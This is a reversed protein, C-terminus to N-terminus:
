QGDSHTIQLKLYRRSPDALDDLAVSDEITVRQFGDQVGAQDAPLTTNQVAWAAGSALSDGGVVSYTLADDDTRGVYTLTLYHKGQEVKVGVTVPDLNPQTPDLGLAYEVLNTLGDKDPDARDGVISSDTVGHWYKDKWADFATGASVTVLMTKSDALHGDSASFIIPYQGIQTSSPTWQFDGSGDHNDVFHADTPLQAASFIIADGDQDSAHLKIHYNQNAQIYRDGPAGIVPAHNMAPAAGYTVLYSKTGDNQTDFLNTSYTVGHTVPDQEQQIWANSPNILKQDSRLVSKIVQGRVYVPSNYRVFLLQYTALSNLQVRDTSTAPSTITCKGIYNQVMDSAGPAYDSEYCLLSTAGDLVSPNFTHTPDAAGYALFDRISDRGPIDVLVNGLLAHATASTILSTVAGGLADAHTLNVTFATFHGSLSATMAWRAIGARLAPLSGFDALLTPQARSGNVETSDIHFSVALHQKNDVIKPQSSQIQLNQAPAHGSNVVRVGLTFPEAPEIIDNTFPDDGFVEVPLFYELQLEPQPAVYVYDPAVNVTQIVGNATYQVTAGIYYLLGGPDEGGAEPAPIILWALNATANGQVSQPAAGNQPRYFFLSEAPGSPSTTVPVAERNANSFNLTVQFDTLETPLGNTLSLKAVFAQRSFTLKQLIEIKVQACTTAGDAWAHFTPLGCSLALAVAALRWLAKPAFTFTRFLNESQPALRGDRQVPAAPKGCDVAGRWTSVKLVIQMLNM